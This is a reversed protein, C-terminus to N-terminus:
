VRKGGSNGRKKSHGQKGTLIKKQKEKRALDKEVFLPELTFPDLGTTYMLASYTSPLPTFIQVQEPSIHLEHSAFQKLARMDEEACGPHAAILYYTLFQRKGAEISFQDFKEKFELLSETTPKGMKELVQPQSHEPAVKLQGSVHHEAVEKLYEEGHQRDALILDYRLGSGVFVKKIGPIQRLKRLLQTQRSHNIRMSPCMQPYICRKDQCAGHDLKVQCEFGYMNATPGGVDLIYGKFDPLRSLREAEELISAESRWRVTRGEHVSIACFNCEGYCGRHSNISFRITDLARVSGLQEYYPHQSYTYPLGYVEDMREETLHDAPPNQVLFRDGHAQVMGQANLPDNNQYFTNFMRIFAYQDANVEEFSPLELYGAPIEHSVFCLGRLHSVDKGESILRTFEVITDDAMGYLLYDAKADFLISRRINNSWYDYHAVRRLSAEIGGLVVPMTDKFYRRVLNTYAIAARDPRRNNIGGPTYDDSRRKKRSATYNAVMSDVSGGTVGWFLKPEGMRTIDDSSQTDPQAIIGVRFGAQELVRGIVSVGIYPSDIYSDGTVLVVDLVDWERALMEERTTPLFDNAM